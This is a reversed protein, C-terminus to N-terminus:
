GMTVTAQITDQQGPISTGVECPCNNYYGWTSSTLLSYHVDSNPGFTLWSKGSLQSCDLPWDGASVDYEIDTINVWWYTDHGGFISTGQLQLSVNWYDTNGPVSFSNCTPPTFVFLIKDYPCLTIPPLFPRLYETCCVDTEGEWACSYAHAGDHYIGCLSKDTQFLDHPGGMASCNDCCPYTGMVGGPYGCVPCYNPDSDPPDAPPCDWYWCGPPNTCADLCEPDTTNGFGGTSSGNYGFTVSIKRPITEDNCPNCLPYEICPCHDCDFPSGTDNIVLEGGQLWIGM